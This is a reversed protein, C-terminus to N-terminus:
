VLWSFLSFFRRTLKSKYKQNFQTKLLNFKRVEDMAKKHEEDMLPNPLKSIRDEIVYLLFKEFNTITNDIQRERLEDFRKNLFDIDNANEYISYMENNNPFINEIILTKIKIMNLDGTEFVDISTNPKEIIGISSFNEITDFGYKEEITEQSHFLLPFQIDSQCSLIHYNSNNLM